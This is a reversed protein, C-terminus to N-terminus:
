ESVQLKEKREQLVAFPPALAAFGAIKVEKMHCTVHCYQPSLPTDTPTQIPKQTSLLM